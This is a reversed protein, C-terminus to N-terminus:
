TLWNEYVWLCLVPHLTGRKQEPTIASRITNGRGLRISTVYSHDLRASTMSILLSTTQCCLPNAVHKKEVNLNNRDWQGKKVLCPYGAISCVRNSLWSREPSDRVKVTSTPDHKLLTNSIHWQTTMLTSLFDYLHPQHAKHVGTCQFLDGSSWRLWFSSARTMYMQISGELKKTKGHTQLLTKAGSVVAYKSACSTIGTVSGSM